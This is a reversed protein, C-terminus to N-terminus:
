HGGTIARYQATARYAQGDAEQSVSYDTFNVLVLTYPWIQVRHECRNWLQRIRSLATKAFAESEGASRVSITITHDGGQSLDDDWAAMGTENYVVYPLQQTESIYSFVPVPSVGFLAQLEADNAILRGLERELAESASSTM